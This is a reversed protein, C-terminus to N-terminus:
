EENLKKELKTRIRNAIRAAVFSGKMEKQFEGGVGMSIKLLTTAHIREIKILLDLLDPYSTNDRNNLLDKVEARVDEYGSM